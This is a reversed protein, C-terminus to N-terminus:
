GQATKGSKLEAEGLMAEVGQQQDNEDGDTQLAMAKEGAAAAAAYNKKQYEAQLLAIEPRPDEPDAAAWLHLTAIAGDDDHHMSQASALIAYVDVDNPHLSLEKHCDDIAQNPAGRLLAVGAFAAWLKPEQPNIAEVKKLAAEAEDADMRLLANGATALLQQVTEKPEDSSKETKNPTIMTPAPPTDPKTGRGVDYSSIRTM